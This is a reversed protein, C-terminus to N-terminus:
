GMQDMTGAKTYRQRDPCLRFGTGTHWSKFCLLVTCYPVAGLPLLPRCRPPAGGARVGQGGYHGQSRIAAPHPPRGGAASVVVCIDAVCAMCAAYPSLAGGSPQASCGHSLGQTCVEIATASALQFLDAYSVGKHQDAIDTLLDLAV